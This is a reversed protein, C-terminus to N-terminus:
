TNLRTGGNEESQAQLFAVGGNLVPTLGDSEKVVQVAVGHTGDEGGAHGLLAGALVLGDVGEVV